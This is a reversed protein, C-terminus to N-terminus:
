AMFLSCALQMALYGELRTLGFIERGAIYAARMFAIFWWRGLFLDSSHRCIAQATYDWSDWHTLHETRFALGIALM